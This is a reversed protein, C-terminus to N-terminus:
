RAAQEKDSADDDGKVDQKLHLQSVVLEPLTIEGPWEYMKSSKMSLIEDNRKWFDNQIMDEHLPLVVQRTKGHVPHKVGKRVLITGKRYMVPENNYNTNFESFLIENKDSSFTGCLRQEAESNTLGGKLVLSWFTTNYLNNIHCDAQRWSLYDRLNEDSPYLVVRSDFSPPYKLKVDKFYEKWFFVYSSSFLSNLYTVIKSTRRNYLTTDKKLVFSYEDSQGYGLLIDKYEQMVVTAARNMLWLARPDNPKAFDHKASFKHFGKGDIRVVIWSNPLLKEDSEFSKVYEFKSKAMKTAHFSRLQRRLTTFCLLM